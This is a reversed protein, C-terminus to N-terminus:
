ALSCHGIVPQLLPRAVQLRLVAVERRLMVIELSV